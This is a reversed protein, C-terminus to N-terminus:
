VPAVHACANSIPEPTTSAQLTSVAQPTLSKLDIDVADFFLEDEVVELAQDM